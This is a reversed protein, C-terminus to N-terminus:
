ETFFVNLGEILELFEADLKINTLNGGVGSLIHVRNDFLCASLQTLMYFSCRLTKVYNKRLTENGSLTYFTNSTCIFAIDMTNTMITAKRAPM